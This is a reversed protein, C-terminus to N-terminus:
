VFPDVPDQRIHLHLSTTQPHLRPQILILPRVHPPAQPSRRARSRMRCQCELDTRPRGVYAPHHWSRHRLSRCLRQQPFPLLAPLLIASTVGAPHSRRQGTNTTTGNDFSTFVPFPLECPRQAVGTDRHPTGTRNISLLLSSSTFHPSSQPFSLLSPCSLTTTSRAVVPDCQVDGGIVYLYSATGSRDQSVV